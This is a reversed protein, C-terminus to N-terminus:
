QTVLNIALLIAATAVSVLIGVLVATNKAAAARFEDIQHDVSAILKEMNSEMDDLDDEALQLRLADPLSQRRQSRPIQQV